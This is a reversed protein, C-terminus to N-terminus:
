FEAKVGLSVGFGPENTGSGHARYATDLVNDLSATATFNESIRYGSYIDVLAYGPTGGPPIRQTDSRDGESLKDAKAVFQTDIGVWLRGDARTWKAGLNVNIPQIRSIHDDSFTTGDFANLEGELWTFNGYVNIGTEFQYAADLEVGQVYGESSNTKNVIITTSGDAETITAGTPSSSIYDSIHTYYYTAGLSLNNIEAKTGIEYTLFKEPDLETSAVEFENSRSAGFRSLDAVNPARFAQSIGAWLRWTQDQNLAYSARLSGVVSDFDDSYLTALGTTPDELTGIDVSAHSYRIGSTLELRPTLDYRNQLFIGLQSYTADDGVPGQIRIQDLSGDANYDTRSSDISDHYFDFGYTFDGWSTNSTLQLDLGITGVEFGEIESAGSSRIREGDEDSTQYSLTFAVEDVWTNLERGTLKAYTLTRHQDKERRIDSGISSGSFSKAFITSHTRPVSDQALTQHAVTLTWLDSISYDFRADFAYEDYGTYPQTGIGAAESDGFEKYSYGLLLGWKEGVGVEATTRAIHSNEGSSYLYSQSGHNYVKGSEENLYESSRTKLFLTGGIADSGHLVSGPGQVLEISELSYPDILSFYENPGDRYISNNYRIGDIVALTRYGTFGRIFPSGQGNSTKQVLVGPLTNLAEPLTRPSKQDLEVQSIKHASFPAKLVEVEDRSGSVLLPELTGSAFDANNAPLFEEQAYSVPSIILLFVFLKKALTLNM